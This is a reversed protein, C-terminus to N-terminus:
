RDADEPFKADPSVTRMARAFEVCQGAYEVATWKRNPENDCEFYKM